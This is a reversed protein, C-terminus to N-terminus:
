RSVKEIKKKPVKPVFVGLKYKYLQYGQKELKAVQKYHFLIIFFLPILVFVGGCIFGVIFEAM